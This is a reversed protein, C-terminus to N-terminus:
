IGLLQKMTDIKKVDETYDSLKSADYKANGVVTIILVDGEATFEQDFAEERALAAIVEETNDCVLLKAENINVGNALEYSVKVNKEASETIEVKCIGIVKGSGVLAFEYTGPVKVDVVALKFDYESKPDIQVIDIGEISFLTENAASAPLKPLYWQPRIVVGCVECHSGETKGSHQETPKVGPDIVVVHGLAPVIEQKVLVKGCALCYLGETLGTETCNPEVRPIIEEDHGLAPIEEQEKITKGCILCREGYTLGAEECTPVYGPIIEEDHGLAPIEEQEKITKGCILCREGDTLGAEECTPAYGPVIETIHKVEFSATVTIDDAADYLTVSHVGEQLTRNLIFTGNSSVTKQTSVGDLWLECPMSLNSVTIAVEGVTTYKVSVNPKTAEVKFKATATRNYTPDYVTLTHEGKGLIKSISYTGDDSITTGISVGDLWVECREFVGTVTYQISGGVYKASVTLKVTPDYPKKTPAPTATPEATPEPTATPEATPEPTVTPEVTPEPTATPEPTVTPEPTATPEPTTTPEEGKVVFSCSGSADGFEDYLNISHTGAALTKEIIATTKGKGVWAGTGKGDLYITNHGEDSGNVVVKGDNYYASVNVALAFSVCSILLMAAFLFCFFKRM